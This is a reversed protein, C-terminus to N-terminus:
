LSELSISLIVMFRVHCLLGGLFVLYQERPADAPPHKKM